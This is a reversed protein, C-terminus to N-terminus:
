RKREWVLHALEPAILRNMATEVANVSGPLAFVFVGRPSDEGAFALGGAARSLMASPGVQEWSLMRFLEGFGELEVSLLRRVVDITTDRRAIGTGGTTVIADIDERRIWARLRDDIAVAEDKVIAREIVQHAHEALIERVRRGGADTEETRSDSVTLVACRVPNEVAQRAAAATHESKM